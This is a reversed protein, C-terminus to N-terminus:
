LPFFYCSLLKNLPYLFILHKPISGDDSAIFDCFFLFIIKFFAVASLIGKLLLLNSIKTYSPCGCVALKPCFATCAFFTTVECLNASHSITMVVYSTNRASILRSKTVFGSTFSPANRALLFAVRLYGWMGGGKVFNVHHRTMISSACITPPPAEAGDCIISLIGATFRQHTVPVGSEDSFDCM